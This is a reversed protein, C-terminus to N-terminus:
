DDLAIKMWEEFAELAEKDSNRLDEKIQDYDIDNPSNAM